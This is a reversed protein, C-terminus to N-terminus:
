EMCAMIVASRTKRRRQRRDQHTGAGSTALHGRSVRTQDIVITIKREVRKPASVNKM